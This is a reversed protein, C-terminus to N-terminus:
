PSFTTFALIGGKNLFQKFLESTKEINEFWQFMANSIILDMKKSPNIKRADGHYFIGEPIIKKIYKESKSVLDNAFYNEYNINNAIESTLLGSGCGLELVNKFDKKIKILESVLKEAMIKQVIANQNYTEFSKEFQKKMLKPNM